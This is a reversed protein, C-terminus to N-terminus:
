RNQMRKWKRALRRRLTELNPEPPVPRFVIYAEWGWRGLIMNVDNEILWRIPRLEDGLVTWRQQERRMKSGIQSFRRDLRNSEAKCMYRVTLVYDKEAALLRMRIEYHKRPDYGVDGRLLSIAYGRLSTPLFGRYRRRGAEEDHGKLREGIHERWARLSEKLM